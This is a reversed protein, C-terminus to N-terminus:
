GCAAWGCSLCSACGEAHIVEQGCEPCLNAKETVLVGERAGERYVTVGKLGAEYAQWYIDDVVSVDVDQPLNITSSVSSDVWRQITAQMRVRFSPEITHAVVVYEPLEKDTGWLERVLPHYVKYRKYSKGDEQKVRREYSTAFIPEMGSSCEAVISGTGVPPVTLITSNRLGHLRIGHQLDQPLEMIYKSQFIRESDFLSFSGKETALEISAKYAHYAITAMIDNVHDLAEDSDYKVKLRVLADGLGTIGLGIRRDALVADRSVNLAHNPANYDIVNDLFRVAVKTYRALGEFDFVGEADVFKSLNLSGLNCATYAPLPQEGCPNTSSLPAAYEVNHYARMRDWFIVGPEASKHAQEVLQTWLQRALVTKYVKGEFSLDFKRGRRVAEMFEDNILVSINAHKVQSRDADSKIRIFDEIDPHDVRMTLMLAGRRGAQSVTNTSESFLNMFSTAGPSHSVTANVSAGAPRLVSIDTGVGGGTRYVLASEKLCEYIGELSDEQIPVVYCNSLTPRRRADSRGAGHMVRGGPVFKFDELLNYFEEYWKPRDMEKEVSAMAYAVRKWMDKPGSENPALYKDRIVDKALQNDGYYSEVTSGDKM